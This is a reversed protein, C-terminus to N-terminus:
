TPRTGRLVIVALVRQVQVATFTDTGAWVALAKVRLAIVQRQQDDQGFAPDVVHAAIAVALTANTLTSAPDSTQISVGDTSSLSSGCEAALQALNVKQTPWPAVATM